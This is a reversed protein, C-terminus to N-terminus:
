TWVEIKEHIFVLGMGGEEIGGENSTYHFVEIYALGGWVSGPHQETGM